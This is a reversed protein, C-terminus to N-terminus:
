ELGCCPCLQCSGIGTHPLKCKSQRVYDMEQMRHIKTAEVCGPRIVSREARVPAGFVVDVLWEEM